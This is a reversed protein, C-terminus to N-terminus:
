GFSLGSLGRLFLTADGKAFKFGPLYPLVADGHIFVFPVHGFSDPLIDSPFLGFKIEEFVSVIATGGFPAVLKTYIQALVEAGAVKALVEASALLGRNPLCAATFVFYITRRNLQM